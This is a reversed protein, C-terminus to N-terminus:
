VNYSDGIAPVIAEYDKSFYERLSESKSKEGHVIFIRKIGSVKKPISELQKRDAHASLHYMEVTMQVNLKQNNLTVSKAGEQMERGLTGQAQYGVLIMKNLSNGALKTLYFMIPGGTLMGSTTVIISSEDSSVIKNRTSKKEVPMFNESKFPDSDSMLIRSQLEKRCYIVNHRHIRLAKNIMGDLYIPVKPIVGSNMYDDLIFLVEQARGVAFSPIVVKGSNKITDVISHVMEKSNDREDKFIDSPAGYTSETILVDAKLGKLDAGNLLRTRSLNIDGTYLITQNGDSVKILASGLIHGAPILTISLGKIKFEKKYEQVSYHKSLEALGEKSVNDPNSIHMYDSILVNALEATPKTTYTKNRYGATYIHPLYGCHDLHAHSIVIGDIALLQEDSIKPYQDDSGLKVGADLLIKTDNGEILICSRGVEGAAGFFSIKLKNM